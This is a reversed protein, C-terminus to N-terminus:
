SQSEGNTKQVTDVNVWASYLRLNKYDPTDKSLVHKNASITPVPTMHQSSDDLISLTQITRQTYDGFEDFNPDLAFRENPHTSWAPEGDDSPYSYDLVSPDWEHPGTLYVAPRRELGEDSLEGLLSLYM